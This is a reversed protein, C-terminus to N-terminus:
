ISVLDIRCKMAAARTIFEPHYLYTNSVECFLNHETGSAFYRKLYENETPASTNLVYDTEKVSSCCVERSSRLFTYLWTSGSKGPGIGVIYRREM